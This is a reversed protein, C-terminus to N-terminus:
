PGRMWADWTLPRSFHEVLLNILTRVTSPLYRRSPYVAYLHLPTLPYDPLLTVLRGQRLDEGVLFTPERIIGRGALAAERLLDGNNTSLTGQIPVRVSGTPGKFEWSGPQSDDIHHLCEHLRLDDPTHPMGRRKLYAPSACTVLRVPALQRAILTTKVERTIRLALDHGAEVLDVITDTLSVELKVDPYRTMYEHFPAALHHLGFSLPANIRLVGRPNEAASSIALEAEEVDKLIRTCREYYSRGQDTLYIRRTTRQLLRTRLRAELDAVQRSAATASIGMQQAARSFSELEVVKTFMRMAQFVDM